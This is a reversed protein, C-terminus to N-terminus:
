AKFNIAARCAERSAEVVTSLEKADRFSVFMEDGQLVATVQNDTMVKASRSGLFRLNDGQMQLWLGPGCPIWYYWSVNLPGHNSSGRPPFVRDPAIEDNALIRPRTSTLVRVAPISVTEDAVCCQVICSDYLSSGTLHPAEGGVWCIAALLTDGVVSTVNIKVEGNRAESISFEEVVTGFDPLEVADEEYSYRKRPHIYTQHTSLSYALNRIRARWSTDLKKWEAQVFVHGSLEGHKHTLHFFVMRSLLWLLQFGVWAYFAAPDLNRLILYHLILSAMSVVACALWTVKWAIHHMSNAPIGLLIRREGGVATPTPLQGVLIDTEIRAKRYSGHERSVGFAILGVACISFVGWTLGEMCALWFSGLKYLASIEILKLMSFLMGCFDNWAALNARYEYYPDEVYIYLGGVGKSDARVADVCKAALRDFVYTDHSSLFLFGDDSRGLGTCTVKLVLGNAPRSIM